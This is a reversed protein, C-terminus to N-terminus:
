AKPCHSRRPVCRPTAPVGIVEPQPVKLAFELGSPSDAESTTPQAFLSAGFQLEDCGTVAPSSSSATVWGPGALDPGGDATFSGPNQWSDMYVTATLPEGDCATPNTFFPVQAGGTGDRLAPDGYFSVVIHSLIVQSLERSTVELRYGDPSPAVHTYFVHTNEHRDIFGFEAPEGQEPTINWIPSNASETGFPETRIHGVVTDPPCGTGAKPEGSEEVKASGLEALTCDPAALASGAFGLPLDVVVDKLDQVGTIVSGLEKVNTSVVSDLDITTTLEYPHDGARTDPLGDAGDIRFSFLSPGFAPLLSSVENTRSVVVSRAGGGSVVVRNTVAGSVGAEVSVPVSVHLSEDPAVAGGYVCEVLQGTVTCNPGTVAGVVLGVPVEDRIVVPTFNSTGPEVEWSAEGGANTVEVEFAGGGAVTFNTPAAQSDVWWGAGSGAGFASGVFVLGVFGCLVVGVCGAAVVGVGVRWWGGRPERWPVPEEACGSMSEQSPM